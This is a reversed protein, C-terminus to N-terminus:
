MGCYVREMEERFIGADTYYKAALTMQMKM